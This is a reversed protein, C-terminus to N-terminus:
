GMRRQYTRGAKRCARCDTYGTPRIYINDETMEHGNRCHSGRTFPALRGKAIMDATNDANTGVILHSYRYCPPNDCLHMVILDDVLGTGFQDQGVM